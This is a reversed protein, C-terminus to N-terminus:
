VGCGLNVRAATGCVVWGNIPLEAGIDGALGSSIGPPQDRGLISRIIQPKFVVLPM